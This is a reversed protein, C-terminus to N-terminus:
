SSRYGFAEKRRTYFHTLEPTQAGVPLGNEEFSLVIVFFMISYVICLYFYSYVEEILFIIEMQHKIDVSLLCLVLFM